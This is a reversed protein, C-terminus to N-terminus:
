QRVEFKLFLSLLHPESGNECAEREFQTSWSLSTHFQQTTSHSSRESHLVRFRNMFTHILRVLFHPPPNNDQGRESPKLRSDM